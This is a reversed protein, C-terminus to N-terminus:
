FYGLLSYDLLLANIIYDSAAINFIPALRPIRQVPTQQMIYLPLLYTEIDDWSEFQITKTWYEWKKRREDCTDVTVDAYGPNWFLLLPVM